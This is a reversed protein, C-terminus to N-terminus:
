DEQTVRLVEAPTTLGRAAKELGDRRMTRMGGRVAAERIAGASAHSLVLARIDDTLPLLEYIGLRGRYGTHSCAACGAGVRYGGTDGPDAGLSRLLAPDPTAPVACDPCVRRL